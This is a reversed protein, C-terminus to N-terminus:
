VNVSSRITDAGTHAGTVGGSHRISHGTQRFLSLLTPPRVPVARTDSARAPRSLSASPPTSTTLPVIDEAHEDTVTTVVALVDYLDGLDVERFRTERGDAELEEVLAERYATLRARDATLLYVVDADHKRVPEVVRDYEYGLPAIHVEDITQM